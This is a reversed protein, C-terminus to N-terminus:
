FGIESDDRDLVRGFSRDSVREISEDIGIKRDNRLDNELNFM